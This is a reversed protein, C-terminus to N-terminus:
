CVASVESALAFCTQFIMPLLHKKKLAKAREGALETVFMMAKERLPMDVTATHQLTNCHTATLPTHEGVRVHRCKPSVAHGSNCHTVTHQLANCHSATSCLSHLTNETVIMMAQERVYTDVTATYQLM